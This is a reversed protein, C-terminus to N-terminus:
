FEIFIMKVTRNLHNNISSIFSRKEHLIVTNNDIKILDNAIGM